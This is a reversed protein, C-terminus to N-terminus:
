GSAWPKLSMLLEYVMLVSTMSLVGTKVLQRLNHEVGQINVQMKDVIYSCSNINFRSFNLVVSNVLWREVATKVCACLRIQFARLFM